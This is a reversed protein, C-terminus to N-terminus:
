KAIVNNRGGAAGLRLDGSQKPNRALMQVVDQLFSLRYRGVM